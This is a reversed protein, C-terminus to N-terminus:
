SLPLKVVRGYTYPATGGSPTATVSGNNEGCTADQGDVSVTPNENVTVTVEDTDECGNADTVTVTYTTTAPHDSVDHSAGAATVTGHDVYVTSRWPPARAWATVENDWNYTYPAEGCQHCRRCILTTTSIARVSLCTMEPMPWPSENVTVTVEDTDECGNADTVTVTYTTTVAPTVDHSAGAGLGNDWNYTYPALGGTASAALTTSEGVCIAADDGADVTPTDYITLTGTGFATCGNADTVTVEYTTTVQASVTETVDSSGTEWAYSFPATGGSPTAALDAPEGPCAEADSVSVSPGGINSITVSGTATCGNADTVTVSYNGASLGSISASTENNNWLYTYPATGGAAAATATGNTDGCTADQGSVMVTPNENVTVVVEDTGECGNVDTVTVTFTTTTAPSVDHSAGAGLTEWNYTYPASGGTASAMLTTSAGECIAINDGADATPNDNVTVVVQDTDKCGNADTITLNYTTTSSPSVVHSEGAGLGNDWDYIYPAQGGTASALLTTQEGECIAIDSGADATPNPLVTITTVDVDTCGNADTVTVFVDMSNTVTITTSTGADGTSWQFTYPPEGELGQVDLTVETGDCATVDDPSDAIPLDFITVTVEDEDTCGNADTVTVTYITTTNPSVTLDASMQGNSWEYSYPATGGTASAILDVSEGLCVSVDDDADAEPNPNVTVTVQDSATCGNADTATVTYTTTSTPTVDISAATMGGPQWEITVPATGGSVNASITTTEGLCIAVDNSATVTPGGQNEITVSHSATCGNADTVTVSYMGALLGSATASSQGDEWDYAYPATGGQATATATGNADGCTSPTSSASVVLEAPENVAETLTATCGNADTVTVSYTGATINNLDEDSSNNSWAYNYPITGGSLSLNIAGTANGFCDM